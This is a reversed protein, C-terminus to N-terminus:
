RKVPNDKLEQLNFPKRMNGWRTFYIIPYKPFMKLFDAPTVGVSEAVVKHDTPLSAKKYIARGEVLVELRKTTAVFGNLDMVESAIAESWVDGIIYGDEDLVYEKDGEISSYKNRAGLNQINTQFNDVFESFDKGQSENAIDEVNIEPM